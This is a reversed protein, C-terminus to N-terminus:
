FSCNGTGRERTQLDFDVNALTWGNGFSGREDQQLSDYRRVLDITTDSLTVSLDTDLRQYQATKPAVNGAEDRSNVEVVIETTTSRGAIDTAKLELVYFGDTYLAPDFAALVEDAIAGYGTALTQSRESELISVEPYTAGM